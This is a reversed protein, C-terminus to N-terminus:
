TKKYIYDLPGLHFVVGHVVLNRVLMVFCLLCPEWTLRISGWCVAAVWQSFHFDLSTVRLLFWSLARRGPVCTHTSSGMQGLVWRGGYGPLQQGWEGPVRGRRAMWTPKPLPLLLAAAVSDLIPEGAEAHVRAYHLGEWPRLRGFSSVDPPLVSDGWVHM